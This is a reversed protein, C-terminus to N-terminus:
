KMTIVTFIKTIAKRSVGPTRVISETAIKTFLM